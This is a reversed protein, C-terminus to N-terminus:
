HDCDKHNSTDQAAAPARVAEATELRHLDRWLLRSLLLEFGHLLGLFDYLDLVHECLLRVALFHDIIVLCLM